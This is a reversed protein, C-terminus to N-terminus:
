AFIAGTLASWAFCLPLHRVSPHGLCSVTLRLEGHCQVPSPRSPPRLVPLPRCRATASSGARTPLALSDPLPCLHTLPPPRAPGSAWFPRPHASTTSSRTSTPADMAPITPPLNLVLQCTPDALCLSFRARTRSSLVLLGPGRPLLLSPSLPRAPQRRCATGAQWAGLARPPAPTPSLPGVQALNPKGKERPKWNLNLDLKLNLGFWNYAVIWLINLSLIICCEM